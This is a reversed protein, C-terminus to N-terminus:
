IMGGLLLPLLNKILTNSFVEFANKSHDNLELKFETHHIDGSFHINEIENYIKLIEEGGEALLLKKYSEPLQKMDSVINGYVPTNISLSSSSLHSGNALEQILTENLSAFMKNESIGIFTNEVAYYNGIAQVAENSTLATKLLDADKIGCTLVYKPQDEYSFNGDHMVKVNEVDLLSFAFEGTLLKTIDDKKLGIKELEDEYDGHESKTQEAINLFADLNLSATGFLIAKQDITLYNMFSKDVTNENVSNFKSSTFNEGELDSTFTFDGDNFNANAVVTVGDYADMLEKEMTTQSLINSLNTYTDMFVLSTFDSSNNLFSQLKDNSPSDVNKSNLLTLAEDKAGSQAYVSVLQQDDWAFFLEETSGPVTGKLISVAGETQVKGGFYLCLSSGIKKADLVEFISVVSEFSGDEKTTVAFPINGELKIGQAESNLHQHIQSNVMMKIQAPLDESKEINSKALLEMLNVSSFVAPHKISALINFEPSNSTQNKEKSDGCSTILLLSSIAIGSLLTKFHQM